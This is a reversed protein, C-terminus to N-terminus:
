HKLAIKVFVTLDLQDSALSSNGSERDLALWFNCEEFRSWVGEMRGLYM